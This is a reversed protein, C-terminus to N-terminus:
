QATSTVEGTSIGSDNYADVRYFYKVEANLCSVTLKNTQAGQVQINLHLADPAM